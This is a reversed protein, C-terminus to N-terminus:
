VYMQLMLCSCWVHQNQFALAALSNVNLIDAKCLSCIFIWGGFADTDWNQECYICRPEMRKKQSLSQRATIDFLQFGISQIAMLGLCYQSRVCGEILEKMWNKSKLWQVALPRITWLFIFLLNGKGHGQRIGPRDNRTMAKNHNLWSLQLSWSCKLAMTFSDSIWHPPKLGYTDTLLCDM